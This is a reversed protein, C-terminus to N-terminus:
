GAKTGNQAFERHQYESNFRRAVVSRGRHEFGGGRADGVNARARYGILVVDM